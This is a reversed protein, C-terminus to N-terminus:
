SHTRPMLYADPHALLDQGFRSRAFPNLGKGVSTANLGMLPGWGRPAPGLATHNDCAVGARFKICIFRSIEARQNWRGRPAEAKRIGRFPLRGLSLIKHPCGRAPELGVM